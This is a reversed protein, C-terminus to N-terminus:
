SLSCIFYKWDNVTSITFCNHHCTSYIPALIHVTSITPLPPYTSMWLLRRLDRSPESTYIREEHHSWRISDGCVGGYVQTGTVSTYTITSLFRSLTIRTSRM